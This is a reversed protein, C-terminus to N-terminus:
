FTLSHALRIGEERVIGSCDPLFFYSYDTTELENVSRAEEENAPGVGETHVSVTIINWGVLAAKCYELENLYRWDPVVVLTAEDDYPVGMPDLAPRTIRNCLNRVFIDRDISRALKGVSVLIDRNAKKFEEEHFSLGEARSCIGLSWLANDCADKLVDAFAFRRASSGEPM